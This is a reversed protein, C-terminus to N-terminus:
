VLIKLIMCCHGEEMVRALMCSFLQMDGELFPWLVYCYPKSKKKVVLTAQLAKQYGGEKMIKFLVTEKRSLLLFVIYLLIYLILYPAIFLEMRNDVLLM